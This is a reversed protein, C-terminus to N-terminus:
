SPSIIEEARNRDLSIAGISAMATKRFVEAAGAGKKSILERILKGSDKLDKWSKVESKLITTLIEGTIDKKTVNDIVQFENGKKTGSGDFLQGFIGYRSGDQYLSKWCVVFGSNSLASVIPRKQIDQTYTNVQFEQGYPIGQSHLNIFSEGLAIPDVAGGLVGERQATLLSRGRGTGLPAIPGFQDREVLQGFVLM